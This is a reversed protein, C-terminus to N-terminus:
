NIEKSVSDSTKKLSRFNIYQGKPSFSCNCENDILRGKNIFRHTTQTM